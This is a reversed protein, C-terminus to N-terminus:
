RFFEQWFIEWQPGRAAGIPAPWLRAWLSPVAPVRLVMLAALLSTLLSGAASVPVGGATDPLDASEVEGVAFESLSTMGFATISTPLAAGSV